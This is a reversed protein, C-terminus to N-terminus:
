DDGRVEGQLDGEGKAMRCRTMASNGTATLRPTAPGSPSVRIAKCGTPSSATATKRPKKKMIKFFEAMGDARLGATKLLELGRLDAEHEMKRSYSLITILTALDGAGSGGLIISITASIGLNSIVSQTPIACTSIASNM